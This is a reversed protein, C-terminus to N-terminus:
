LGVAALLAVRDDSRRWFVFAAIVWYGLSFLADQRRVVMKLVQPNVRPYTAPWVLRRRM